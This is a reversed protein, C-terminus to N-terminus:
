AVFTFHSKRRAKTKLLVGLTVLGAALLALTGPEPTSSITGNLPYVTGSDSTLTPNAVTQHNDDQLTVSTLTITHSFSSSASVNVALGSDFHAGSGSNMELFLGFPQGSVVPLELEFPLGTYSISDFHGIAISGPCGAPLVDLITLKCALFTSGNSIASNGVIGGQAPDGTLLATNTGTVTFDLVLFGSTGALWGGPTVFDLSEAFAQTGGDTLSPLILSTTFITGTGWGLYGAHATAGMLVSDNFSDLTALATPIDAALTGTVAGSVGQFSETVRTYLQSAAAPIVAMAAFIILRYM